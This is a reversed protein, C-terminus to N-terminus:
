VFRILIAPNRLNKEFQRRQRAAGGGRRISNSFAWAQLSTGGGHVSRFTYYIKAQNGFRKKALGAVVQFIGDPADNSMYKSGSVGELKRAYPVTAVLVVEEAGRADAPTAVAIDDAFITISDRYEGSLVPAYARLEKYCWAVIEEGFEWEAVIMGNPKVSTLPAGERGDVYVTHPIKRGNSRANQEDAAAIEQRAFAALAASIEADTGAFDDMIKRVDILDFKTTIAL